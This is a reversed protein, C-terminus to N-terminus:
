SFPKLDIRSFWADIGEDFETENFFVIQESMQLAMKSDSFISHIKCVVTNSAQLEIGKMSSDDINGTQVDIKFAYLYHNYGQQYDLCVYIGSGFFVASATTLSLDTEALEFQWIPGEQMADGDILMYHTRIRDSNTRWLIFIKSSEKETAFVLVVNFTLTLNTAFKLPYNASSQISNCQEQLDQNPQEYGPTSESVIVVELYLFNEM